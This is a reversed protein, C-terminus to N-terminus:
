PTQAAECRGWVCRAQPPPLDGDCMFCASPSCARLDQSLADLRGRDIYKNVYYAECAFGRELRAATWTCPVQAVACDLDTFCRRNEEVFRTLAMAPERCQSDECTGLCITRTYDVVAGDPYITSDSAGVELCEGDDSTCYEGVSCTGSSECSKGLAPCAVESYDSSYGYICRGERCVLTEDKCAGERRCELCTSVVAPCDSNSNCSTYVPEQSCINDPGCCPAAIFPTLMLVALSAGVSVRRIM